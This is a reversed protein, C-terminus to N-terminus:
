ESTLTQSDQMHLETVAHSAQTTVPAIVAEPAGECM